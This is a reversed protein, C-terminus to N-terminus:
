AEYRLRRIAPRLPSSQLLEQTDVTDRLAELIEDFKEPCLQRLQVGLRTWELLKYLTM